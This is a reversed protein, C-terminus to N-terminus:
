KNTDDAPRTAATGSAPAGASSPATTLVPDITPGPDATQAPDTTPAPDTSPVPEAAVAPITIASPATTPAPATTPPPASPSASDDRIMPRSPRDPQETIVVMRDFLRQGRPPEFTATLVYERDFEMQPRLLRFSYTRSTRNWRARQAGLDVLSGRWYALRIGRPDPSSERYTFLEFTVTGAQKMPDGLADLFELEAVVADAVGDGTLDVVRTFVPHIRMAKADLMAPERTRPEIVPDFTGCGASLLTAAILSTLTLPKFAAPRM